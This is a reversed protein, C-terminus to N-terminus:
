ELSDDPPGLDIGRLNARSSVWHTHPVGKGPLLTAPAHLHGCLTWIRWVNPISPAISKNGGRHRSSM